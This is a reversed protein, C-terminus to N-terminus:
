NLAYNIIQRDGVKFAPRRTEKDRHGFAWEQISTVKRARELQLIERDPIGMAQLRLQRGCKNMKLKRRRKPGQNFSPRRIPHEDSEFFHVQSESHQWNLSLPFSIDSQDGVTVAYERVEYSSFSVKRKLVPPEITPSISPRICDNADAEKLRSLTEIEDDIRQLSGEIMKVSCSYNRNSSMIKKSCTGGSPIRIKHPHDHGLFATTQQPRSIRACFYGRFSRTDYGLLFSGGKRPILVEPGVNVDLLM